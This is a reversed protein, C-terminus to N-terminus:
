AYFENRRRVREFDEATIGLNEVYEGFADRFEDPSFAVGNYVYRSEHIILRDLFERRVKELVAKRYERLFEGEELETGFPYARVLTRQPRLNYALHFWLRTLSTVVDDDAEVIEGNYILRRYIKGDSPSVAWDPSDTTSEASVLADGTQFHLEMTVVRVRAARGEYNECYIIAKEVEGLSSLEVERGKLRGGLSRVPRVVVPFGPGAEVVREEEVLAGEEIIDLGPLAVKADEDILSVKYRPLHRSFVDFSGHLPVYRVARYAGEKLNYEEM